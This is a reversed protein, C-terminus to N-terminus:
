DERQDREYLDYNAAQAAMSGEHVASAIQHAFNRTVDGAAYFRAVNTRQELDTNVFHDRSLKVGLQKALGTHPRAPQVSFVFDTPIAEGSDLVVKKFYGRRGVAKVVSGKYIPIRSRKLRGVWKRSLKLKREPDNTVFSLEPHYIKLQMATCAADDNNGLVVVRKGGTKYGDCTICWFLSRGLYDPEHKFAPFYDVVGTALIVTRGRYQRAGRLSFGQPFKKISKIEDVAFKTGFKEAQRVGHARLEMTHIGDPFGLYNENVEHTHWRGGHGSDVVLVTRNFRAMYIAASLGAPGGGIIICDYLTTAM